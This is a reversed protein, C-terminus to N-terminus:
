KLPPGTVCLKSFLKSYKYRVGLAQLCSSNVPDWSGLSGVIFAFVSTSRFGEQQSMHLAYTVKSLAFTNVVDVKQWPTLKSALIKEVINLIDERLSNRSVGRGRGVEVGLYRYTDDWQLSHIIKRRYLPSFDEVYSGRYCSRDVLSLCGCKNPNVSLGFWTCFDELATLLEEVEEKTKTILCIDDAFVKQTVKTGNKSHRVM